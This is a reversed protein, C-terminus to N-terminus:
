RPNRNYNLPISSDILHYEVFAFEEHEYIM